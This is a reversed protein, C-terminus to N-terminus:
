ADETAQHAQSAQVHEVNQQPLKELKEMTGIKKELNNKCGLALTYLKLDKKNNSDVLTQLHKQL